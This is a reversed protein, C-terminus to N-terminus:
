PMALQEEYCADDCSPVLPALSGGLV